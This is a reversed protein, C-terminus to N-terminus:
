RVRVRVYIDVFVNVNESMSVFYTFLFEVPLCGCLSSSHRGTHTHATRRICTYPRHVHEYVSTM